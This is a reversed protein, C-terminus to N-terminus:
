TANSSSAACFRSRGIWTGNWPPWAPPRTTSPSPGGSEHTCTPTPRRSCTTSPSAMKSSAAPTTPKPRCLPQKTLWRWPEGGGAERGGGRVASHPHASVGAQGVKLFDGRASYIEHILEPYDIDLLNPGLRVVPGYRRHLEAFYIHQKGGWCHYLRWLDTWGAVRCRM